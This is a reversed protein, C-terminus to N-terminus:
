CTCILTLYIYIYIYSIYLKFFHAVFNSCCSIQGNKETKLYYFNCFPMWISIIDLWFYEKEEVHQLHQFPLPLQTWHLFFLGKDRQIQYWLAGCEDDACSWIILSPLVHKLRLYATQIAGSWSTCHSMKRLAAIYLWIFGESKLKYLITESGCLLQCRREVHGLKKRIVDLVRCTRKSGCRQQETDGSGSSIQLWM